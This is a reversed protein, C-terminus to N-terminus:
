GGGAAPRAFVEAGSATFVSRYGAAVVADRVSPPLGGPELLVWAFGARLEAGLDALPRVRGGAIFITPTADASVVTEDVGTFAAVPISAWAQYSAAVHLLRDTARLSGDAIRGELFADVAAGRAGVVTRADPYGQWYGLQATRLNWVAVDATPHSAQASDPAVPGVPILTVALVAAPVALWATGARRSRRAAAALVGALAPACAWPLWYGVAKPVEYRLSQGVVTGDPVLAAALLLALGAALGAAVLRRGGRLVPVLGALAVAAAAFPLPFAANVWAAAQGLASPRLVLAAGLVVAGLATVAIAGRRPGLARDALRALALREVAAATALAAVAGAALAVAGTVPPPELGTMVALQPLLAVGTAVLAPAARRLHRGPDALTALAVALGTLTGVLPHVLTAATLAAAMVWDPRGAVPPEGRREVRSGVLGALALAALPLATVSDRVDVLRVFTFTPLIALLAWFAADRGFAGVALRRAALATAAALWATSAAVALAASLGTVTALTGMVAEYGLFLRSPGYVPSPYTALSAISGFARLHEAPAVHNPLVDAAPVVPSALGVLIVTSLAAAVLLWRAPRIRGLRVPRASFPRRSAGAATTALLVAAIPVPRFWGLGGLVSVLAVDLVVAGALGALAADGWGAFPARRALRLVAAGAAVDLAMAASVLVAAPLTVPLQAATAALAAGVDAGTSPDAARWATAALLAVTALGLLPAEAGPALRRRGPLGSTTALREM